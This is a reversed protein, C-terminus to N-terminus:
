GPARTYASTQGATLTVFAPLCNSVCSLPFKDTPKALDLAFALKNDTKKTIFDKKTCTLMERIWYTGSASWPDETRMIHSLPCKTTRATKDTVHNTCTNPGTKCI